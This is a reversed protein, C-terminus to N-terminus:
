SARVVSHPSPLCPMLELAAQMRVLAVVIAEVGGNATAAPLKFSPPIATAAFANTIASEAVRDILQLAQYNFPQSRLIFLLCRVAGVSGAQGKVVV